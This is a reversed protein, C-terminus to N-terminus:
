LDFHRGNTKNPDAYKFSLITDDYSIGNELIVDERNEVGDMLLVLSAATQPPIEINESLKASNYLLDSLHIRKKGIELYILINPSYGSKGSSM